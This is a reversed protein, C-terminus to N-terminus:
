SLVMMLKIQTETIKNSEIVGPYNTEIMDMISKYKYKIITNVMTEHILKWLGTKESNQIKRMMSFDDFLMIVANKYLSYAPSTVFMSTLLEFEKEGNSIKLAVGNNNVLRDFSVSVRSEDYGSILNYNISRLGNFMIDHMKITQELIEQPGKM